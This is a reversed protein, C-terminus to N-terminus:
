TERRIDFSLGARAAHMPVKRWNHGLGYPLWTRDLEASLASAPRCPDESLDRREQPRHSLCFGRDAFVPARRSTGFAECFAALLKRRSLAQVACLESIPVTRGGARRLQAEVSRIIALTALRFGPQVRLTLFTAPDGERPGKRFDTRHVDDM